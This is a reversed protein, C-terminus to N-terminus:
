WTALAVRRWNNNSVCIYLYNNDYAIDGKTGASTYNTPATTTTVRLQQAVIAGTTLSSSGNDINGFGSTISGSNLAGTGTIDGQHQSSHRRDHSPFM